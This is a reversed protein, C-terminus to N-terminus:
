KEPPKKSENFSAERALAWFYLSAVTNYPMFRKRYVEFEKKSLSELGYLHMMGNRIGLDGYSIVDPRSLSFILLMEVTWVGIGNLATLKKIIEDKSLEHLKDFDVVGSHAAEAIGKIYTVKRNSMGCSQISEHSANLINEASIDGILKQLRTKVTDAAKTSIQQSIISSILAHFPQPLVAREIMGIRDIAASLKDCKSKLYKLETEGYKYYDM